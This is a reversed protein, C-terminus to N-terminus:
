RDNLAMIVLDDNEKFIFDTIEECDALSLNLNKNFKLYVGASIRKLSPLSGSVAGKRLAPKEAETSLKKKTM